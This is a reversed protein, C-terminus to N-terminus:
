DEIIVGDQPCAATTNAPVLIVALEGTEPNAFRTPDEAVYLTKRYCIGVSSKYFINNRDLYRDQILKSSKKVNQFSDYNHMRNLIVELTLVAECSERSTEGQSYLGVYMRLIKGNKAYLSWYVPKWWVGKGYWESADSQVCDGLSFQTNQDQIQTTLERLDIVQNPSLGEITTQALASASSTMLAIVIFINKM